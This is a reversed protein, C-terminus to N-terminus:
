SEPLSPKKSSTMEGQRILIELVQERLRRANRCSRLYKLEAAKRKPFEAAFGVGLRWLRTVLENRAGTDRSLWSDLLLEWNQRVFEEKPGAGYRSRLEKPVDGLPLGYEVAFTTLVLASVQDWQFKCRPV